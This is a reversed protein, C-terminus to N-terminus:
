LRSDRLFKEVDYRYNVRLKKSDIEIPNMARIDDINISKKDLDKTYDLFDDIGVFFTPNSEQRFNFLFGCVMQYNSWKELGLIQNKKIMFSQKKSKDEFDTCWFTFSTGKTTKLELAYLTRSYNEFMLYDCENTSSFRTNANGGFSAVNDNLRKLWVHDIPM